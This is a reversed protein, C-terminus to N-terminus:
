SLGHFGECYKLLLKQTERLEDFSGPKVIIDVGYDDCEKCELHNISTSFMVVPLLGFRTDSKLVRLVEIGTQQPMNIDMILLCPHINGRKELLRFLEKGSELTIVEYGDHNFAESFIMRDYEDDDVYLVHKIM